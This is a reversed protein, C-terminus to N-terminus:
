SAYRRPEAPPCLSAKAPGISRLKTRPQSGSRPTCGCKLLYSTTSSTQLQNWMELEARMPEMAMLYIARVYGVRCAFLDLTQSGKRIGNAATSHKVEIVAYNGAMAGHTYVLLDPKAHDAGLERLIPHAM